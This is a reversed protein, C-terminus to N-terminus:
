DLNKSVSFFDGQLSLKKLGPLNDILLRLKSDSIGTNSLNLVNLFELKGMEKIKTLDDAIVKNNTLVLTEIRPCHEIVM